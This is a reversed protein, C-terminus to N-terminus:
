DSRTSDASPADGGADGAEGSAGLDGAVADGAGRDTAGADAGPAPAGAEPISCSADPASTGAATSFAATAAEALKGGFADSFGADITVSFTTSAPWAGLCDAAVLYWRSALGADALLKYPVAAGNATVHILPSTAPVAPLRNSFALPLQYSPPVAVAGTAISV